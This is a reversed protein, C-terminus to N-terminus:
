EFYVWFYINATKSATNYAMGVLTNANFDDIVPKLAFSKTWGIECNTLSKTNRDYILFAYPDCFKEVRVECFFSNTKQSEHFGTLTIFDNKITGAIGNNVKSWFGGIGIPGTKFGINYEPIKNQPIYYIGGYISSESIKQSIIAGTASGSIISLAPPEFQGDIPAPRNLFATPRGMFGVLMNTNKGLKQDIFFQGFSGTSKYIERFIVKANNIGATIELAVWFNSDHKLNGDEDYQGTYLVGAYKKSLEVQGFIPCAIIIIALLVLITRM